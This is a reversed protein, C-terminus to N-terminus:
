FIYLDCIFYGLKKVHPFNSMLQRIELYEFDEVWDLSDFLGEVWMVWEQEGGATNEDGKNSIERERERGENTQITGL